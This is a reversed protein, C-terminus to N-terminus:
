AARAFEGYAERAAAEYAASAEEPTDFRGLHRHRCQALYRGDKCKYVGKFGSKSDSHRKQNGMNQHGTALRLNEWRDDARNGNEHDVLCPPPEGTVIQWIIRSTRYLRGNIKIIRYGWGNITGARHGACHGNLWILAGTEPEYRLRRMLLTTTIM